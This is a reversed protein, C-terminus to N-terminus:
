HIRKERIDVNPDSTWGYRNEIERILEEASEVHSLYNPHNLIAMGNKKADHLKFHFFTVKTDMTESRYLTVAKEIETCLEQEMMGHSCLIEATPHVSRVQKIFDIYARIFNQRENTRITDDPIHQIYTADNTGLNIVILDPEFEHHDWARDSLVLTAAEPHILNWTVMGLKHYLPPILIDTNRVGSFSVGSYVGFGSFAFTNYDAHFKQAVKHSFAKTGDQTKTTFDGETDLLGFACVLSDGIFEIKKEKAPTPQIKDSDTEIDTIYVSGKDCESVKIFRVTHEGREDFTITLAMTSETTLTDLYLKDDGYVFIHAPFDKSLAGYISDPSIIITATKGNFKFEIGSGTHSIWLAGEYYITRGFIKVNDKTPKFSHTITTAM